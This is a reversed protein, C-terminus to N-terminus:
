AGPRERCRDWGMQARCVDLLTVQSCLAEFGADGSGSVVRGASRYEEAEILEQLGIQEDLRALQSRLEKVRQQAQESLEETASSAIQRLEDVVPARRQKLQHSSM